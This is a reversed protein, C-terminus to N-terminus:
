ALRYVATEDLAVTKRRPKSTLGLALLKLELSPSQESQMLCAHALASRVSDSEAGLIAQWADPFDASNSAAKRMIALAYAAHRAVAQQAGGTQELKGNAYLRTSALLRYRAGGGPEALLLSKAVLREVIRQPDQGNLLPEGKILASVANLTFPGTFTSAVRLLAQECPLLGVYSWDLVAGMSRHRKAATRRSAMQLRFEGNLMSLLPQIGFSGVRAAAIEIELPVGDLRQCLQHIAGVDEDHLVFSSDQALAHEVFLRVAPAELIESIATAGIRPLALPPLRELWEDRAQIPERSTALIRCGPAAQRLTAIMQQVPALLHECNDLVLLTDGRRLTAIVDDWAHKDTPSLGLANSLAAQV